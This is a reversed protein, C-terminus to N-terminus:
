PFAQSLCESSLGWLATWYPPAINMAV